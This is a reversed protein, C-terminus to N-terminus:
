GVERTIVSYHQYEEICCPCIIVEEDKAICYHNNFKVNTAVEKLTKAGCCRCIALKDEDLLQEYCNYCVNKLGESSVYEFTLKHLEGCDPCTEYLSHCGECVTMRKGNKYDITTATEIRHYSGCDDCRFYVKKHCFHCVYGDETTYKDGHIPEGCEVCIEINHCHNCYFYSEETVEREGCCPCIPSSGVFDTKDGNDNKGQFTMATANSECCVDSYHLRYESDIEYMFNDYFEEDYRFESYSGSESYVNTYVIPALVEGGYFNQSFLETIMERLQAVAQMNEYPYQRSFVAVGDHPKQAGLYVMERWNKSPIDNDCFLNMPKGTHIYAVASAEDQMYSLCGGRYEGQLANHCSRWDSTNVSMTLYDIPDISLCLFGKQKTKQYIKSLEIGAWERRSFWKGKENEHYNEEDPVLSQFIQSFKTGVQYKGLAEEYYSRSKNSYRALEHVLTEKPMWSSTNNRLGERDSEVFLEILRLADDSILRYHKDRFQLFLHRIEGDSIGCEMPVEVKLKNGFLAFLHKKNNAWKSLVKDIGNRKMSFRSVGVAKRCALTLLEKNVQELMVSM